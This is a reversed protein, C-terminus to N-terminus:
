SRRSVWVQGGHSQGPVPHVRDDDVVRAAQEGHVKHVGSQNGAPGAGHREVFQGDEIRGIRDEVGHPTLAHEHHGKHGAKPNCSTPAAPADGSCRSDIGAEPAKFADCCGM